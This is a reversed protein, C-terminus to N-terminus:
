KTSRQLAISLVLIWLMFIGVNIREWM